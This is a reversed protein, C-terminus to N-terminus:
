PSGNHRGPSAWRFPQAPHVETGASHPKVIGNTSRTLTLDQTVAQRLQWAEHSHYAFAPDTNSAGGTSGILGLAGRDILGDAETITEEVTWTGPEPDGDAWLRARVTHGQVQARLWFVDDPQYTEGTLVSSGIQSSGRTVSLSISQDTAFHARARYFFGNIAQYRFVAGLFFSAGSAVQSVSLPVLVEGDTTTPGITQARFLLPSSTLTLLGASGDVSRVTESLGGEERWLLREQGAPGTSIGWTGSQVRGFTDSVTRVMTPDTPTPQTIGTATVVEGGLLLGVPLEDAHDVSDVWPRGPETIRVTVSADTEGIGAELITSRSDWRGYGVSGPDARTDWTGADWLHAPQGILTPRWTEEGHEESVGLALMDVPSLTPSPAEVQVRDGHELALLDDVLADPARELALTVAPTRMAQDVGHALRWSSHHPLQDDIEVNRELSDHYVGHTLQHATDSDTVSSGDPRSVAVENATIQNDKVPKLPNVLASRPIILQPTQNHLSENTRFGFGPEDPLEHMLGGVAACEGLLDLLPLPRQPGMQPSRDSSGILRRPIREEGLLRMYRDAASEGDFAVEANALWGLPALQTVAVHGMSIGEPYGFALNSLRRPRGARGTYGETLFFGGGDNPLHFFWFRYFVDGEDQIMELRCYVPHEFFQDAAATQVATFGGSSLRAGVTITTSGIWIDWRTIPDADAVNILMITRTLDAAPLRVIWDVSWSGSPGAPVTGNFGWPQNASAHPMPGTAPLEDGGFNMSVLMPDVGPLPSTAHTANRGDTMPWYAQLYPRFAPSMIRRQLAPDLAPNGQALRETVGSASITVEATGAGWGSPETPAVRDIQGTFRTRWDGDHWRQLRLPTGDAIHPWWPSAPNDPTLAGDHNRLRVEVSGSPPRVQAGESRLGRAVSTPASSLFRGEM